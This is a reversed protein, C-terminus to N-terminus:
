ITAIQKVLEKSKELNKKPAQIVFSLSDPYLAKVDQLGKKVGEGAPYFVFIPADILKSKGLFSNIPCSLRDAWVPSGIVVKGYEKAEFVYEELLLKNKFAAKMGFWMMKFFNMIGIKKKTELKLIEFGQEKFLDALSDGNGSNSYYVFISKM